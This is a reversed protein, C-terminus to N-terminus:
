TQKMRENVPTIAGNVMRKKVIQYKMTKDEDDSWNELVRKFEIVNKVIHM